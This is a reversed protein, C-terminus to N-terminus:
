IKLIVGKQFYVSLCCGERLISKSSLNQAFMCRASHSQVVHQAIGNNYFLINEKEGEEGVM